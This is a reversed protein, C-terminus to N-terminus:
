RSTNVKFALKFCGVEGIQVMSGISRYKAIAKFASSLVMGLVYPSMSKRSGARRILRIGDISGLSKSILYRRPALYLKGPSRKTQVVCHVSM